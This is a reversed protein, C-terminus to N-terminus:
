FFSYGFILSTTKYESNWYVYDNMINRSNTIRFEFSYKDNHKYGIGFALNPNSNIDYNNLISGDARNFTISNDLVFDIVFSGNIYIKSNNNLFFYHRISLPMEISTYEVESNLYGGSIFQSKSESSSKYNQYTPEITISWKNKNFPLIFEAEIGFGFNTKKDFEVRSYSTGSYEPTIDLSISNIRPRITLNFLDKKSKKNQFSIETNHCDSYKKFYNILSNEKYELKNLQSMKFNECKLNVWLQQKFRENKSIKGDETLYSKFILQKIDENNKKYFFRNLIQDTYQYLNSQGEILVKLFLVEKKFVAKRIKSLKNVDSSSRDILVTARIYKSINNISFEKISEIGIEQNTDNNSLKYTIKKPSNRWDINKILCEIKNGSNNIFYGNEYQIQSYGSYSIIFLFLTLLNKKM